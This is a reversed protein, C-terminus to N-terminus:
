KLSPVPDDASLMVVRYGGQQKFYWMLALYCLLMGVPFIAITKLADKKAQEKVGLVIGQTAADATSLKAADVARYSGFISQKPDTVYTSHLATQNATDYVRLTADINKDQIFGLIVAGIVGAGIMGVGGTINLTLAGGKPFREAVVGLMTPWFFTKGLAFVTAAVLVMIGNSSSLLFLGVAAVASCVALLGLPSIKHIFNGAFLRLAAMIASTYVLIWGAQLGIATMEPAMLDSIWSDTGLETTALPVMILLMVIFLPRGISRVFFGFVAVVGATVAVNTLTSWGFVVGLQFVILAVIILAGGVGVEKLMDLYSVGAKVRENVPFRLPFMLIGYGIAPLLVLIIKFRWDAEPGMVLAMIGGLVLGTPWGAHLMNLWKTKEKPFLTAVAPNVVAEVTGNGLAMIFTAVYLSTYGTAFFTLAASAVHCVFAFIMSNKYGVKDVILSFLVISIAFPWLGVGAIEGIQTNTLKFEAGWQSLTLARLIFGFSTTVLAVFCALFLKIDPRDQRTSNPQTM